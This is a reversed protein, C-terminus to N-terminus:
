IIKYVRVGCKAAVVLSYHLGTTQYSISAHDFEASNMGFRKIDRPVPTFHDLAKPDSSARLVWEVSFNKRFWFQSLLYLSTANSDFAKNTGTPTQNLVGLWLVGNVQNSDQESKKHIRSTYLMLDSALWNNGFADDLNMNLLKEMRYPKFQTNLNWAYGFDHLISLNRVLWTDSSLPQSNARFTNSFVLVFSFFLSIFTRSTNPM